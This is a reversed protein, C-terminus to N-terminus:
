FLLLAALIYTIGFVLFTIGVGFETPQNTLGGNQKRNRFYKWIYEGSQAGFIILFFGEVFLIDKLLINAPTFRYRIFFRQALSHISPMFVLNAILPALLLLVFLFWYLRRM